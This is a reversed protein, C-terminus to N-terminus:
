RRVLEASWLEQRGRRVEPWVIEDRVSVDFPTSLAHQASVAAVRRGDGAGPALEWIELTQFSPDDLPKRNRVAFIRSGDGSWCPASGSGVAHCSGDSAECVVVEDRDSGLVRRGDRSWRAWDIPRSLAREKGTALDRLRTAKIQTKDFLVYLLTAGAPDPVAGAREQFSWGDLLTTVPGGSAAVSLYAPRPHDRYFFLRVGDGSWVPMILGEGPGGAVQRPGRGDLTAVFIKELGDSEANAFFAVSTGDPSFATGNLQSRWEVLTRSVGSSPDLLTLLWTTKANRYVICSGDRAVEPEDDEGAGSTVPEPEGGSVGVRWLTRSGRRASSFVIADGEPLWAVGGGQAVDHTLRRPAGGTADVIWFDGYPGREPQYYALSRGDPSVAACRSILLSFYNVPVGEVRRAEAGDARATWLEDGRDFVVHKGDPFWAACRGQEVIRHPAGGLPPVLWLGEGAREFLVLDGRPSWRPRAAPEPGETAQVSDGGDLRRTFVQATGGVDDLYALMRGDPSLSPSRHSGAFSSLLRFQAPAAAERPRPRLVAWVVAAALALVAAARGRWAWAEPRAAVGRAPAPMARLERLMEATEQYRRSPDKELARAVIRELEAPLERRVTRLPPAPDRVIAALVDVVSDGEFPRRGTLAEYLLTGFSFIDSRADVPRAQAQEPSMYHPTGLVVGTRTRAAIDATAVDPTAPSGGVRKALGFDLVKVVGETTVMVNRPKLDRHVIGEQHARELAEAIPLAYRLAEDPALGAPPILEDLRRGEVLEMAIFPLGDAEDVEYVTVINPHALASAAQAERLLREREGPSAAADPRLLKLAVARGLRLDVARYVSGMGGSGLEALIRFHTLQRGIM